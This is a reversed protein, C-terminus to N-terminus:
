VRSSKKLEALARDLTELEQLAAKEILSAGVLEDEAKARKAAIELAEKSKFAAFAADAKEKTIEERIPPMWETMTFEQPKYRHLVYDYTKRGKYKYTFYDRVNKETGTVNHCEADNRCYEDGSKGINIVWNKVPGERADCEGHHDSDGSAAKVESSM